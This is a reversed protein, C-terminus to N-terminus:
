AGLRNRQWYRRGGKHTWRRYPFFSEVSKWFETLTSPTSAVLLLLAHGLGITRSSLRLELVSSMANQVCGEWLATLLWWVFREHRLPAKGERRDLERERALLQEQLKIAM